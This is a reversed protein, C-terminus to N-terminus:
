QVRLAQCTSLLYTSSSKGQPPRAHLTLFGVGAVQAVQTLALSPNQSASHFGHEQSYAYVLLLPREKPANYHWGGSWHPVTAYEDAEGAASHGRSPPDQISSGEKHM